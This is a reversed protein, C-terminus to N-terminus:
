IHLKLFLQDVEFVEFSAVRIERVHKVWFIDLIEQFDM